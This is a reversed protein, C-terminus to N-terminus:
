RDAAAPRADRHRRLADRLAAAVLEQTAEPSGSTDMVRTAAPKLREALGHQAAIRREADAESSGRALLRERQRAPTCTVLWVEDCIPAYGSEILKIAELVVFETDGDDAAALEALIRPRVAPHVIAELAALAAPDAFVIAALAARDLAGGPGSVADGFRDIIEDHAPEGPQTVERVLADADVIRAGWARLWGAITSKGCGIPGTIGIRLPRM